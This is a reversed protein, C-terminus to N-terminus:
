NHQSSVAEFIAKLEAKDRGRNHHPKTTEMRQNHRQIKQNLEPRDQLWPKVKAAPNTGSMDAIVNVSIFWRDKPDTCGENYQMLADIAIQIREDASRKSASRSRPSRRNPKFTPQNLDVAPLAPPAAARQAPTAQTVPVAQTVPAVPASAAQAVPAAQTPSLGVDQALSLFQNLRAQATQLQAQLQDREQQTQYLKDRLLTVEDVLITIPEQRAQSDQVQQRLSSIQQSLTTLLTPLSASDLSASRDPQRAPTPADPQPELAGDAELVQQLLQNLLSQYGRGKGRSLQLGLHEAADGLLDIDVLIQKLRPQSASKSLPLQMASSSQRIQQIPDPNWLAPQPKPVPEPDVPLQMQKPQKSPLMELQLAIAEVAGPTPLMPMEEGAQESVQEFSDAQMDGQEHGQLQQDFLQQELQAPSPLPPNNALKIGSATIPKGSEDVLRYGFDPHTSDASPLDPTPGAEVHGIYFQLWPQQNGGPPLWFYVAMRGYAARLQDILGSEAGSLLPLIKTKYFHLKVRSNLSARFAKVQKDQSSLRQMAQVQPLTRFRQIAQMVDQSPLLSVIEYVVPEDPKLRGDFLLLYPHQTLSFHGSVAIEPYGRGTAAAIGVALTEAQDSQLLEATKKLFRNPVFSQPQELRANKGRNSGQKDRNAARRNASYVANDYRMLSWALHNVAEIPEGTAQKQSARVITNHTLTLHGQNVAEDIATRYNSLYNTTSNSGKGYGEELLAIEDQCLQQIAQPTNLFRLRAVFDQVLAARESTTLKIREGKQIRQRYQALIQARNM